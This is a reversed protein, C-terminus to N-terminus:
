DADYCGLMGNAPHSYMPNDAVLSTLFREVAVLNSAILATRRTGYDIQPILNTGDSILRRGGSSAAMVPYGTIVSCTSGVDALRTIVMRAKAIGVGVLLVHLPRQAMDLIRTLGDLHLEFERRQKTCSFDRSVVALHRHGRLFEGWQEIDRFRRWYLNPIALFYEDSIEQLCRHHRSLSLVNHSSTRHDSEGYISFTPGTIGSVDWARLRNYLKKRDGGWFQELYEDRGNLITTLNTQPLVGLRNRIKSPSEHDDQSRLPATYISRLDIAAEALPLRLGPPLEQTRTPIFLPFRPTVGSRLEVESLALGDRYQHNFDDRCGNKTVGADRERCILHCASCARYRPDVQEFVCGCPATASGGCQEFLECAPCHQQAFTLGEAKTFSPQSLFMM